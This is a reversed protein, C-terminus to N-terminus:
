HKELFDLIMEATEEPRQKSNDIILDSFIPHHYNEAYMERIRNIEWEDLERQGRNTLCVDLQPSLTICFFNAGIKEVAKIRDYTNKVLPYAFIIYDYECDSIEKQLLNELRNVRKAWGQELSLGLQEQEEDSILDDVEVFLSSALKKNLIKSVTTKGSNIPGNINIIKM